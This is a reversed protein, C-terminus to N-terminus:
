LGSVVVGRCLAVCAGGQCKPCCLSVRLLIPWMLVRVSLVLRACRESLAM